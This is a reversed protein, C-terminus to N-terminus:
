RPGRIRGRGLTKAADDLADNIAELLADQEDLVVAGFYPRGAQEVFQERNGFVPHRFSPKNLARFMARRDPPLNKGSSVFRGAGGTKGTAIRFAIGKAVLASTNTVVEQDYQERDVFTSGDFDTGKVRRTRTRITKIRASRKSVPDTVAAQMKKVIPKGADRVRKRIKNGLDKDFDKVDNLLASFESADIRFTDGQAGKSRISM